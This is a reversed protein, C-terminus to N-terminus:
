YTIKKKKRLLLISGVSSITFIITWLEFGPIAPGLEPGEIEVVVEINNSMTTGDANKSVVAFFYTGDSYDLAEYSLDTVDDLLLTLSGNIETILSSYVYLSYSDAFTSPTWTLNFDGNADPSGADSSLTFPSPLVPIEVVVEINNSLTTGLSNKAVVAFFYTGDLYDVVEYSLDTVEDLLLTLSGNIDTILSSYVYLSYNDALNSATWTLNFDGNADPSGADSFLTFPEPIPIEVTVMLNSSTTNGNGNKAVVLFYYTGDSYGSAEYSLDTIEDLLLTLSGNIETILSSSMYLSYNDAYSSPSWTVNFNGDADPDDADSNILILGPLIPSKWECPYFYFKSMSNQQFGALHQDFAHYIYPSYGWAWPRDEEILLEQIRDYLAERAVSDVESLAAEMLLQVNDNLALPDRGAEIAATYGNYQAGNYAISRNTLLQNIFNSPDNYDMGWGTWYLQFMNRHYGGGEFMRSYFEMASVEASTVNIGIKTMNDQLLDSIEQSTTSGSSYTYNYTLFPATNEQNIWEADNYINFGNGFGMSQMVLRARTFNLTPVDFTDNAYLIGNPIPSLSREASRERIDNLIHDYDISYSIAERITRNIQQNNMGLFWIINSTTSTNLFTISPSSKIASYWSSTTALMFHIDGALLAANRANSDSIIQFRMDTINAKGKWYNDFAHFNVEVTATYNDYVFPGTGVLDGNATDIYATAPTSAPSLMYSGSFCLLAEFPVYPDNLVFTVNYDSNKILSSVIPRGDPLEYLEHFIAIQGTNTGTVNLAWNLRDWTFIVADANFPAGDHFTVGQRLICTYETGAPNWTGSLALNPIIPNEPESLNHVFLGECVQDIVYFSNLDWANHPDLDSPGYSIGVKFLVQQMPNSSLHIEDNVPWSDINRDLSIMSVTLLLSFIILVLCHKKNKM